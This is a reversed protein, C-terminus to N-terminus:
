KPACQAEALFSSSGGGNSGGKTPYVQPFADDHLNRGDVVDVPIEGRQLLDHILTATRLCPKNTKPPCTPGIGVRYRRCGGDSFCLQFCEGAHFHDIKPSGPTLTGTGPESSIL